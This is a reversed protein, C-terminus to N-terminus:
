RLGDLRHQLEEAVELLALRLQVLGRLLRDVARTHRHGAAVSPLTFPHLTLHTHLRLVDGSVLCLSVILCYKITMPITPAIVAPIAMKTIFPAAASLLRCDASACAM